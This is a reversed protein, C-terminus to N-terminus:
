VVKSELCIRECQILLSFIDEIRSMAYPLWLPLSLLAAKSLSQLQHVQLQSKAFGKRKLYLAGTCDECVIYIVHLEFLKDVCQIVQRAVSFGIYSNRAHFGSTPIPTVEAVEVLLWARGQGACAGERLLTVEDSCQVSVKRYQEGSGPAYYDSVTLPPFAVRYEAYCVHNMWSYSILCRSGIAHEKGQRTFLFLPIFICLWFLLWTHTAFDRRGIAPLYKNVM